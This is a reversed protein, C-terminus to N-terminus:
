LRGRRPKQRGFGTAPRLQESLYNAIAKVDASGSEAYIATKYKLTFQGCAPKIEMPKPIVSIKDTEAARAVSAFGTILLLGIITVALILSQTQKNM